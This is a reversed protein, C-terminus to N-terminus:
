SPAEIWVEGMARYRKRRAKIEKRHALFRPLTPRIWEEVHEKQWAYSWPLPEVGLDFALRVEGEEIGLQAESGCVPCIAKEKELFFFDSWCVPCVNGEPLREGKEGRALRRGLKHIRAMVEDDLM